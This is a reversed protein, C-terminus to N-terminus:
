LDTKGADKAATACKGTMIDCQKGKASTEGSADAKIVKASSCCGGKASAHKVDTCKSKDMDKCGDGDAKMNKLCAEMDKSVLKMESKTGADAKIMKMDTCKAHGEGNCLGAAKMKEMCAKMDTEDCTIGHKAAMEKCQEPSMIKCEKGDVMMVKAGDSGLAQKHLEACSGPMGTSKADATEVKADQSQVFTVGAFLGFACVIAFLTLFSKRSKIFAM